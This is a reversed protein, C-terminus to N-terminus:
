NQQMVFASSRIGFQFLSRRVLRWKWYRGIVMEKRKSCCPCCIALFLAESSMSDSFSFGPSRGCFCFFIWRDFVTCSLIFCPRGMITISIFLPLLGVSRSLGKEHRSHSEIFFTDKAKGPPNKATTDVVKM